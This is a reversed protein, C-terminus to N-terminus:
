INLKNNLALSSSFIRVQGHAMAGVVFVIPKDEPILTTIDPVVDAKFTTKIKTCGTPLHDTVPNKIVQINLIFILILACLVPSEVNDHLGNVPFSFSSLESINHGIFSVIVIPLRCSCQHRPEYMATLAVFELLIDFSFTPDVDSLPWVLCPTTLTLTSFNYFCKKGVKLLRQPGDAAHISLKQLLQVSIHFTLPSEDASM